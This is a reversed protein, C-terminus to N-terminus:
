QAKKKKNKPKDDRDKGGKIVRIELEQKEVKSSLSKIDNGITDLKEHVIDRDEYLAQIKTEISHEIKIEIKKQGIELSSLKELVLKQFEENTM